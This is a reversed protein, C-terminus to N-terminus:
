LYKNLWKPIYSRQDNYVAGIIKGGERVIKEKMSVAAPWKTREERIVMVVGDVREILAFGIPSLNVPPADILILTFEGGFRHWLDENDSMNLIAVSTGSGPSVTTVTLNEHEMRTFEGGLASTPAIAEGLHRDLAFDETVDDTGPRPNLDLLLVSEAPNKAAIRALDLAITSAGEGPQTGLFEVIRTRKKGLAANIAQYLGLMEMESKSRLPRFSAVPSEPIKLEERERRANELVEYLKSM